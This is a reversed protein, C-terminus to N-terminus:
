AGSAQMGALKVLNHALCILRWEDGVKALGRLLFQRFGRAAKIQGFVPEVSQKRLRYRSRHGGRRLRRAMARTHEGRGVAQGTASASGHRQRGTAIYGRIGREALHALNAESCYGSDASLERPLGGTQEAIAAVMAVVQRKDNTENTVDAAVIVQSDADVAAQANYSQEFGKSDRM